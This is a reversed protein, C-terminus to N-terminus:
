TARASSCSEGDWHILPHTGQQGSVGSMLDVVPEDPDIEFLSWGNGCRVVMGCAVRVKRSGVSVIDRDVTDEKKWGGRM